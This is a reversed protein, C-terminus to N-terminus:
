VLVDRGADGQVRHGIEGRGQLIDIDIVDEHLDRHDELLQLEELQPLPTLVLM